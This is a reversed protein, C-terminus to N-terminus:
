IPRPEAVILARLSAASLAVSHRAAATTSDFQAETVPLPDLLNQPEDGHDPDITAHHHLTDFAQFPHGSREELTQILGASPRPRGEHRGPLAAPRENAASELRSDFLTNADCPTARGNERPNSAELQRLNPDPM